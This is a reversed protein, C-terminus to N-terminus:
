GERAREPGAHTYLPALGVRADVSLKATDLLSSNPFDPYVIPFM